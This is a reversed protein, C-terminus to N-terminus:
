EVRRELKAIEDMLRRFLCHIDSGQRPHTDKCCKGVSEVWDEIFQIQKETLGTEDPKQTM